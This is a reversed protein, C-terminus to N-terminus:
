DIDQYTRKISLPSKPPSKPPSNLPFPKGNRTISERRDEPPCLEVAMIADPNRASDKEFFWSVEQQFVDDLHSLDSPLEKQAGRPIDTPDKPPEIERPMVSNSNRQSESDYFWSIEQQFVDDLHGLDSPLQQKLEAPPKLHAPMCASPDRDSESGFFWSIEQQFVDDLHSLDSPLQQKAPPNIIKPNVVVKPAVAKPVYVGKGFGEYHLKWALVLDAEFDYISPVM